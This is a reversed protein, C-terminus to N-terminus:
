PRDGGRDAAETGQEARAREVEAEQPPCRPRDSDLETKASAELRDALAEHLEDGREPDEM